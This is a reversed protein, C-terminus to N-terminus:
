DSGAITVNHGTAFPTSAERARECFVGSEHLPPTHGGTKRDSIAHACCREPFKIAPKAGRPFERAGWGLGFPARDDVARKLNQSSSKMAEVLVGGHRGGMAIASFALDRVRDSLGVVDEIATPAQRLAVTRRDGFGHSRAKAAPRRESRRLGLEHGAPM